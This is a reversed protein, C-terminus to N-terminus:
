GVVHLCPQEGGGAFLEFFFFLFQSRGGSVRDGVLSGPDVQSPGAALFKGQFVLLVHARSEVGVGFEGFGHCRSPLQQGCTLGEGVSIVFQGQVDHGISGGFENLAQARRGGGEGSWFLRCVRTADGPM